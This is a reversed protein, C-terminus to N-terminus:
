CHSVPPLRLLLVGKIQYGLRVVLEGFDKDETLLLREEKWALDIVEKDQIGRHTEAVFEIDSGAERIALVLSADCCEDALLKM